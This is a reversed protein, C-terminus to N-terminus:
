ASKIKTEVSEPSEKSGSNQKVAKLAAELTAVNAPLASHAKGSLQTKVFKLTVTTDAQATLKTLLNVSDVFGDLGKPSGDCPQVLATVTRLDFPSAVPDTINTM